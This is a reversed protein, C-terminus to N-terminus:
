LLGVGFSFMSKFGDWLGLWFGRSASQCVDVIDGAKLFQNPATGRAMEVLNLPIVSEGEATRRKLVCREPSAEKERLGRALAIGDLVTTPRKLLFGGPERVYGFVYFRAAEPVHVIDGNVLVMNLGLNGLELLEYMDVTIRDVVTKDLPVIRGPVDSLVEGTEVDPRPPKVPAIPGAAMGTRMVYCAQGAREDPGGALALIQLLTTANQHLTYVGPERVAGVVSIRNAQFEKVAVSVRPNKLVQREKLIHEVDQQLQAPTRGRAQFLGIVPLSIYGSQSVRAELTRTEERLEWEFISISLVDEPGIKYDETELRTDQFSRQIRQRSAHDTLSDWRAMAAENVETVPPAGSCAVLFFGAVLASWFLPSTRKV